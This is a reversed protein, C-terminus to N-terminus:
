DVSIVTNHISDINFYYNLLSYIDHLEQKTALFGVVGSQLFYSSEHPELHEYEILQIDGLLMRGVEKKNGM